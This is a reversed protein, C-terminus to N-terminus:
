QEWARQGGRKREGATWRRRRQDEEQEGRKEGKDGERQAREREREKM